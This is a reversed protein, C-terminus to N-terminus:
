FSLSLSGSSTAGDDLAAADLWGSGSAGEFRLSGRLLPLEAQIAVPVGAADFSVAAGTVRGSLTGEDVLRLWESHAEDPDVLAEGGTPGEAVRTLEQAYAVVLAWEGSGRGAADVDTLTLTLLGKLDGEAVMTLVVRQDQVSVRAHSLAVEHLTQAGASAGGALALGGAFALFRLRIRM